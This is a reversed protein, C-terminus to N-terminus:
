VGFHFVNHFSQFVKLLNNTTKKLFLSSLFTVFKKELLPSCSAPFFVISYEFNFTLYTYINLILLSTGKAVALNCLNVV